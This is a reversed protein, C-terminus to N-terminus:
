GLGFKPLGAQNGKSLSLSSTKPLSSFFCTSREGTDLENLAKRGLSRCPPGLLEGDLSSGSKSWVRKEIDQALLSPM